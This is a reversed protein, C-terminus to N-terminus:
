IKVKTLQLQMVLSVLLFPNGSGALVMLCPFYDDPKDPLIYPEPIKKYETGLMSITDEM